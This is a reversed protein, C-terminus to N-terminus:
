NPSSPPLPRGALPPARPDPSENLNTGNARMNGLAHGAGAGNTRGVAPARSTGAGAGLGTAAAGGTNSLGNSQVGNMGFGGANGPRAVLQAYATAACGIMLASAVIGGWVTKM